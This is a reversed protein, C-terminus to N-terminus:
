RARRRTRAIEEVVEAMLPHRGAIKRGIGRTLWGLLEVLVIACGAALLVFVLRSIDDELKREAISPAEDAQGARIADAAPEDPM